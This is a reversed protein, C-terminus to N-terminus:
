KKLYKKKVQNIFNTDIDEPGIAPIGIIMHQKVPASEIDNLYEETINNVTDMTAKCGIEIGLMVGRDFDSATDQKRTLLFFITCFVIFAILIPISRM